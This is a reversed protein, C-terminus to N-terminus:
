GDIHRRQFFTQKTRQGMKQNYQKNKQHQAVHATQITQFENKTLQKM